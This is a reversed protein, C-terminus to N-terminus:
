DIEDDLVTVGCFLISILYIKSVKVHCSYYKKLRKFNRKVHRQTQSTFIEVICGLIYGKIVEIM